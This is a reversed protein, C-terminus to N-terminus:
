PHTSCPSASVKGRILCARTRARVVIIPTTATAATPAAPAGVRAAAGTVAVAGSSAGGGVITTVVFVALFVWAQWYDFTGAPWFLVAIFFGLGLVSQTAFKM